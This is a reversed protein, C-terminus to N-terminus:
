SNNNVTMVNAGKELLMKVVEVCGGSSAANLPTWGNDDATTFDVGKELLMKVVEAYGNISAWNLPTWGNKNMM